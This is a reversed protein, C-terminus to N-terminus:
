HTLSYITSCVKVTNMNLDLRKKAAASSTAVRDALEQVRRDEQSVQQKLDQVGQKHSRKINDLDNGLAAINHKTGSLHSVVKKDFNQIRSIKDSLGSMKQKQNKTMMKQLTYDYYHKMNKSKVESQPRSM